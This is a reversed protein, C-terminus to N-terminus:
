RGITQLTGILGSWEAMLVVVVIIVLWLAVAFLTGLVCGRLTDM